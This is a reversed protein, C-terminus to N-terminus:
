RPRQKVLEEDHQAQLPCQSLFDIVFQVIKESNDLKLKDARINWSCGFWIANSM